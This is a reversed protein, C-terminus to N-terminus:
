GLRYSNKEPLFRRGGIEDSPTSKLVDCIDDVVEQSRLYYSHEVLGRAVPTCDVLTIKNHVMHPRRAGSAGLRDMNGKTVDSVGLARDNRNFLVTIRQGLAPLDGLKFDHEFADDDEDAAALIIEDFVRPLARREEKMAQLAWRLAYNGMSHCILHLRQDCADQASMRGLFRFLFELGRTFAYGSAEADKRDSRYHLTKGNSPWSFVVVEFPRGTVESYREKMLAASRLAEFFDVNFGHIFVLVDAGESRMRRQVDGLFDPKVRTNPTVEPYVDLDVAGGPGPAVDAAGFRLNALGLDSFQGGFNRPRQKRDPKRNTGFFVRTM